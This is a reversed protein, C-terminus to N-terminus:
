ILKTESPTWEVLAVGARRAHVIARKRREPSIDATIIVTRIGHAATLELLEDIMGLVPLSFVIRGRLNIDDDILGVINRSAQRAHSREEILFSRCREGGGYVVVREAEAGALCSRRENAAAIDQLTERLVRVGVLPFFCLMTFVVMGIGQRWEPQAILLVLGAGLLNGGVIAIVLVAYDRPVARSWVRSYTRTLALMVFVPCVMLPMTHLLTFRTAPLGNLSRALFWVLVLAVVDTLIYLPAVLRRAVTGRTRTLLRGTDLLEVRSLHRVALYAAIVFAVLYIGLSRGKMLAASIGVLVLAGNALYLMVAARRQNMTFALVRHHIHDKDANMIRIRSAGSSAMHPLAARVSRRWIALVTDFIPIGMALLPVGLSALMEQRTATILALSALTLGIFMSGTDGLFISAPHFNYRLFGLCAGALALFPLTQVTFGRFILSGAMGLAAILGLGAALGDMGDILNFANMAGILWFLTLLCDAWSPLAVTLLTNFRFGGSFLLAAVATQGALKLWPRLNLADDILGVAVLLSSATLFTTQRSIGDPAIFTPIDALLLVLLALHFGLYVALGGGRPTPTRHIRRADPADVMGLRRALLKVPPTLALVSVLAVLFVVGYKGAQQVHLENALYPLSMM